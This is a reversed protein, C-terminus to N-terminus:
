RCFWVIASAIQWCLLVLRHSFPDALSATELGSPSGPEPLGFVASTYQHGREPVFLPPGFMGSSLRVRRNAIRMSASLVDGRMAAPSKQPPRWTRHPSRGASRHRNRSQRLSPSVLLVLGPDYVAQHLGVIATTTSKGSQRCCNLLIWRSTSRLLQAQWSEACFRLRDEAFLAADLAHVLGLGVDLPM